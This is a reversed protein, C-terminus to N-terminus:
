EDENIEEMKMYYDFDDMLEETVSPFWPLPKAYVALNNPHLHM